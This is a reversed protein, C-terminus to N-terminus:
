NVRCTLFQHNKAHKSDVNERSIILKLTLIFTYKSLAFLLSIIIEKM